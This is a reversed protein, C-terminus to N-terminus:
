RDALRDRLPNLLVDMPWFVDNAWSTEPGYISFDGAMRTVGTMRYASQKVFKGSPDVTGFRWDMM